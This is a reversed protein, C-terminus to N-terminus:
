VQLLTCIIISRMKYNDGAVTTEEKQPGFNEAANLKLIGWYLFGLNVDM